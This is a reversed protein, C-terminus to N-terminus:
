LNKISLTFNYSIQPTTFNAPHSESISFGYVICCGDYSIGYKRYIERGSALDRTTSFAGSFNNIIKFTSGVNIQEKKGNFSNASNKVLLYNGNIIVREFNMSAIVENVENDYNSENLQFNYTINFIKKSKYLVEGV